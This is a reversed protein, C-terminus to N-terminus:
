APRPSRAVVWTPRKDRGPSEDRVYDYSGGGWSGSPLGPTAGSWEVRVTLPLGPGDDRLTVNGNEGRVLEPGEVLETDWTVQAALNSSTKEGKEYRWVQGQDDLVKFWERVPGDWAVINVAIAM